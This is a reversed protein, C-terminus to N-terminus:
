LKFEEYAVGERNSEVGFGRYKLSKGEGIYLTVRSKAVRVVGYRGTFSVGITSDEYSAGKDCLNIIYDIIKEGEVCSTVKAGVVSGGDCLPEVSEVSGAANCSPELISIFPREWAEGEQRVVLVQTPKDVYGNRSERTPPALATTYEREVGAPLLMHMYRGDYEVDFRLKVGDATGDTARTQSFYRWGPSQVPDGTDNQYRDTPSTAIAGGDSSTLHMKDGLNHYIYDHFLNEELSRSRFMDFYYATKDSTRLIALTREQTARNVEDDLRQTAFSFNRSVGEELHRPQSAVNVARNQWVYSKSKWAGKQEGHSTGNVVVTNNGAYIRYYNEHIPLQRAEVSTPLSGNAAMVYEAGYLEMTIGTLHSHVYHAGGIIGCLGYLENDREVASRQLAVGAHEVIVSQRNFDVDTGEEDGINEGWLLELPKFNDHVRGKMDPHYGGTAKYSQSLALRAKAELDTYGRRRAIDLTYLYLDRTNDNYRHSDGYCVFTRDPNRLYDFFFNGELISKHDRTVDWEPKARDLVSLVLTVNPMFGYSVSEPWIGQSSFLPLITNKFSNQHKTGVEWFLNLLREREAEDDICLMGYLPGPATLIPHNSVVQGHKDAAGYEQMTSGVMNLIARQAMDNDFAVYRGKAESYVKTRPRNLYNYTFDYILALAAYSTRPDTFSSGSIATTEPTLPAIREAYVSFVDAAFQAYQREETIYYLVAAYYADGLIALHKAARPKSISTPVDAIAFPPIEDIFYASDKAYKEMSEEVMDSMLSVIQKAWDYRDILELVRGREQQTVWINPHEVAAASITSCIAILLVFKQLLKRM